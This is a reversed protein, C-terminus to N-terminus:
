FLAHQVKSLIFTSIKEPVHEEPQSFAPIEWPMPVQFVDESAYQTDPQLTYTTMTDILRGKHHRTAALWAALVSSKAYSYAIRSPVSCQMALIYIRNVYPLM